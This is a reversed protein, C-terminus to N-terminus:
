LNRSTYLNEEQIQKQYDASRNSNFFSLLAWVVGAILLAIKINKHNMNLHFSPYKDSLGMMYLSASFGIRISDHNFEYTSEPYSKKFLVPFSSIITGIWAGNQVVSQFILYPILLIIRALGGLIPLAFLRNPTEPKPIDVSFSDNINLNFWPYKDTIGFLYFYIKTQYRFYGIVWNYFHDWVSGKILVIFSNIITLIGVYVGLLFFVIFVPILLIIKILFGFFPFAFFRNPTFPRQSVLTPYISDM